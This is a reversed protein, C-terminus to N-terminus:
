RKVMEEGGVGRGEREEEWRAERGGKGEGRGGKEGVKRGTGKKKHDHARGQTTLAKGTAANKYYM